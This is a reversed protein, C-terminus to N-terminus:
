AVEEADARYIAALIQGVPALLRVFVTHEYVQAGELVTEVQDAIWSMLFVKGADDTDAAAKVLELLQHKVDAPLAALNEDPTM